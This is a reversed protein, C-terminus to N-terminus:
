FSAAFPCFCSAAFYFSAAKCNFPAPIFFGSWLLTKCYRLLLFGGGCFGRDAIGALQEHFDRRGDRKVGAIQILEPQLGAVASAAAGGPWLL